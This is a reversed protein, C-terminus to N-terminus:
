NASCISGETFTRGAEPQGAGRVIADFLEPTRLTYTAAASVGPQALTRYAGMDLADPGSKAKALWAEFDQPKVANVVFRMDSFREGSFQASLGPFSGVHDAQLHLQTAMGAMTYIQSGLQPVFFSNMVSASTLHLRLPRGSPVVLHNVTAVEGEPYLFLWKWDLSVVQIDLPAQESALPKRPDLDHSALWAIGGLFMIVLLPVSWVLVEVPGSYSWDPARRAWKNGARFWWAFALTLVIVPVIIALMIVTANLLVLHEAAAVPGKPDPVGSSLWGPAEVAM